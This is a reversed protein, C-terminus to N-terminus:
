EKILWILTEGSLVTDDLEIAKMNYKIENYNVPLIRGIVMDKPKHLRNIVASISFIRDTFDFDANESMHNRYKVFMLGVILLGTYILTIYGFFYYTIIGATIQDCLIVPITKRRSLILSELAVIALIILGILSEMIISM